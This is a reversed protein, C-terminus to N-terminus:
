RSERDGRDSQPETAAGEGEPAPQDLLAATSARRGKLLHGYRLTMALTKHRLFDRVDNLTAGRDLLETAAQHRLDHFKFKDVGKGGCTSCSRDPKGENAALCACPRKLGAAEVALDFRYRLKQRDVSFVPLSPNIPRPLGELLSRTTANMEVTGTCGNKADRFTIIGRKFDIDRWTLKFIEGQRAGTFRAFTVVPRVWDPCASMLAKMEDVSLHKVRENHVEPREINLAPNEQLKHLAVAKKFLRKIVQVEQLVTAPQRETEREAKFDVLMQTTIASLNIKWRKKLADLIERDRRASKKNACFTRFYYDAYEGFTMPTPKFPRHGHTSEYVEDKFVEVRKAKM